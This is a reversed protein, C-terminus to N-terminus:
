MSVNLHQKQSVYFILNFYRLSLSRHINSSPLLEPIFSYPTELICVFIVKKWNWVLWRPHTLMQSVRKGSIVSCLPAFLPVWYYEAPYSVPGSSSSSRPPATRHASTCSLSILACSSYWTHPACHLESRLQLVAAFGGKVMSYATRCLVHPGPFSVPRAINVRQASSLPNHSQPCQCKVKSKGELIFKGWSSGRSPYSSLGLSWHAIVPSPENKRVLPYLCVVFSGSSPLFDVYPCTKLYPCSVENPYFENDENVKREIWFELETPPVNPGTHSM